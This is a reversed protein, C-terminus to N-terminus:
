IKKIKERGGPGRHGLSLEVIRTGMQSVGLPLLVIDGLATTYISLGFFGGAPRAPLVTGMM